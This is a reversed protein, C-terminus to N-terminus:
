EGVAVAFAWPGEIPGRSPPQPAPPPPSPPVVFRAVSLTIQSAGSPPRPVVFVEAEGHLGIPQRM